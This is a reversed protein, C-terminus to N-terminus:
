AKEDTKEEEPLAVEIEDLLYNILRLEGVAGDFLGQPLDRQRVIRSLHIRSKKLFSVVGELSTITM